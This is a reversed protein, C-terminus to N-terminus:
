RAARQGRAFLLDEITEALAAMAEDATRADIIPMDSQGLFCRAAVSGGENRTIEVPITRGGAVLQRMEVIETM